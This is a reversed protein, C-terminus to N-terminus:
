GESAKEIEWNNDKPVSLSGHDLENKKKMPLM